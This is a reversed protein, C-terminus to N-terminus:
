YPAVREYTGLFSVQWTKGQDKSVAWEQTVKGYPLPTFTIRNIKASKAAPAEDSLIM